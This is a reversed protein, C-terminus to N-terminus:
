GLWGALWGGALGKHAGAGGSLRCLYELAIVMATLPLHHIGIASSSPIHLKQTERLTIGRPSAGLSKM